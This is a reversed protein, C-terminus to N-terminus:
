ATSGAPQIPAGLDLTDPLTPAVRHRTTQEFGYAIRLLTPESWARGFFSVGVPLGHVYGGPVTINPYGSVAAPTSSGGGFHDGNVLDIKWPPGGTVAFIADLRHDDMARDIGEPGTLRRATALAALYEPSTLDGKEVALEFIEQGFYPMERSRNAENFAIIEALSKWPASLGRDWLYKELGAKFEYLLVEYTANGMESLDIEVPDILVAGAGAMAAMAEDLLADVEEHFGFSSRLIGIRAGDLGAADLFRTYDDFVEGRDRTAPDEPDQATAVGLLIAADEVSRAMPGATDQTHSIPIIGSRGWLGVTPKIGVLSNASSPCVISGNTETGIAAACLNASAAAGSGSSSGCPSRDLAYPNGCQGGRGSWGSSSRESRFNAWESLNAKGLLIAGAARLAAAVHSDAPAISGELALSGATTTMRDATDINDKLLIPIGHLPGRVSGQTREQDLQDAIQLADPNTELVSRMRGDVAAIRDLYRQTIERASLQGTEMLSQLERISTEELDFPAAEGAAVESGADEGPACGVVGLLAAAGGVAGLTLFDRRDAKLDDRDRKDDTM